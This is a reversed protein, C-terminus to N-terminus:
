QSLTSPAWFGSLGHQGGSLTQEALELKKQDMYVLALNNTM